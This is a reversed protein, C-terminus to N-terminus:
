VYTDDAPMPFNISKLLDMNVRGTLGKWEGHTEPKHRTLTNYLHFNPNQRELEQLKDLCLMDDKTKNSYLFTIDLGDRALTSAQAISYLPTIGSGGAILGVRQKKNKLANGKHSFEGYGCYVSMSMPGGILVQDGVNVNNELHQTFLGGNPFEECKRYIKIVM